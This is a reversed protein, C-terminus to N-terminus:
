QIEKGVMEIKLQSSDERSDGPKKEIRKNEDKGYGQM